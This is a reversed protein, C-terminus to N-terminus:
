RSARKRAVACAFIEKHPHRATLLRHVFECYVFKTLARYADYAVGPYLVYDYTELVDFGAQRLAAALEDGNWFTPQSLDLRGLEHARNNAPRRTASVFLVGGDNLVRRVECLAGAPTAIYSIAAMFICSDFTGDRFPLPQSADGFVCKLRPNRKQLMAWQTYYGWLDFLTLDQALRCLSAATIVGTSPGIELIRPTAGFDVYQAIKLKRPTGLEKIPDRLRLHWWTALTDIWTSTGLRYTSSPTV